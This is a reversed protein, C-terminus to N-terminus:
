EDEIRVLGQWAALTERAQSRTIVFDVRQAFEELSMRTPKGEWPDLLDVEHVAYEEPVFHELLDPKGAPLVFGLGKALFSGTSHVLGHPAESYTAGYLVYAHGDSAEKSDRLGVVAPQGGLLEEIAVAKSPFAHAFAAEVACAQDYGVKTEGARTLLDPSQTVQHEIGAWLAEFPSTELDPNLACMVEYRSATQVKVSGDPGLGQIRTAIETQTTEHGNYRQIMEACAAWCWVSTEQGAAVGLFGPLEYHRVPDPTTSCAALLVSLVLTCPFRAM